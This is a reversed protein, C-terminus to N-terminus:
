QIRTLRKSGTRMTRYEFNEPMGREPWGHFFCSHCDYQTSDDLRMWWLKMGGLRTHRCTKCYHEVPENYFIPKHSTWAVDDRQVVLKAWERLAQSSNYKPDAKRKKMRARELERNRERFGPDAESKAEYWEVWLSRPRSDNPSDSGHSKRFHRRRERADLRHKEIARQRKEPDKPFFLEVPTVSFLRSPALSWSAPKFWRFPNAVVSFM